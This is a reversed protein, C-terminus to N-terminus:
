PQLDASEIELPSRSKVAVKVLATESLAGITIEIANKSIVQIKVNDSYPLTGSTTVEAAREVPAIM